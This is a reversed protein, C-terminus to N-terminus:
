RAERGSAAAHRPRPCLQRASPSCLSCLSCLTQAAEAQQMNNWGQGSMRSNIMRSPRGVRCPCPHRKSSAPLNTAHSNKAMQPRIAVPAVCSTGPLSSVHPSPPSMHPGEGRALASTGLKAKLCKPCRKKLWAAAM